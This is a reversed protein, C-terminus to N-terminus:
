DELNVLNRIVFCSSVQRDHILIRAAGYRFASLDLDQFTVNGMSRQSKQARDIEYFLAPFSEQCQEDSLGHNLADRETDFNPPSQFALQDLETSARSFPSPAKSWSIQSELKLYSLILLIVAALITGFLVKGYRRPLSLIMISPFHLIRQLASPSFGKRM